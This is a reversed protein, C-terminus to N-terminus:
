VDYVIYTHIGYTRALDYIDTRGGSLTDLIDFANVNTSSFNKRYGGLTSVSSMVSKGRFSKLTIIPHLTASLLSVVYM